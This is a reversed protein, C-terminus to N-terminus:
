AGENEQLGEFAGTIKKNDDEGKGKETVYQVSPFKKKNPKTIQPNGSGYNTRYPDFFEKSAYPIETFHFFLLLLLKRSVKKPSM